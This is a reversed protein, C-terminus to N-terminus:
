IGDILIVKPDSLSLLEDTFGNKSALLYYLERDKSPVFQGKLKLDELEKLGVEKSRYKCEGLLLNKRDYAIFDIESEQWTEDKYIPGWWKGTASPMFPIRGDFAYQYCNERIIDEYQFGLFEQYRSELVAPMANEHLANIVSMNPEIFTYYFRFIHDTIRYRQDRKKSSLPNAVPEIFGLEQLRKLYPTLGKGEIGSQSAIQSITKNTSGLTRLIREYTTLDRVERMLMNPAEQVLRGDPLFFLSTIASKVSKYRQFFEIYQAVGGTMSYVQMAEELSPYLSKTQIFTFPNVAIIEDFRGYLPSEYQQIQHAMFSHNSGLLILKKGHLGHDIIWQFEPVTDPHKKALFPFEDIIICLKGSFTNTLYDIAERFSEARQLLGPEPLLQVALSLFDSLCTQYDFSMCQFYLFPIEPNLKMFETMLRTKGTRRRGYVAMAKTDSSACFSSLKDLETERFYFAM